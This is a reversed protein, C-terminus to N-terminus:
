LANCFVLTDDAFLLHSVNMTACNRGKLSYGTLFGVSVAKDILLSFVEMGLVFLYPSLSDGQSLGKMNRFFSTLSGNLLVLFSATYICWKIWSIWKCGFGMHDYTKEIDLKCLIGKEKSKLM